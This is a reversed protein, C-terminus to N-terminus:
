GGVVEVAVAVEVVVEVRLQPDEGVLSVVVDGDEVRGLRRQAPTSRPPQARRTAKQRPASGSQSTAIASPVIKASPSGSSAPPRARGARAACRRCRSPPRPRPAPSPGRDPRPGRRAAFAEGADRVPELPHGLEVPHQEDVVRLRGVDGRRGRRQAGELAPHVRDEAAASFPPPKSASTSGTRRASRRRSGSRRPRRAARGVIERRGLGPTSSCRQASRSSATPAAAAAAAAPPPPGARARRRWSRRRGPSRPARRASGRAPRPARPAPSCRARLREAVADRPRRPRSALARAPACGISYLRSSM